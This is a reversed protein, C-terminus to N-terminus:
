FNAEHSLEDATARGALILSDYKETNEEIRKYQYIFIKKQVLNYKKLIRNFKKSKRSIHLHDAEKLLSLNEDWYFIGYEKIQRLQQEKTYTSPLNYISFALQRNRDITDLIEQYRFIDRNMNLYAFVSTGLGGIMVLFFTVQQLRRWTPHLLSPYYLWGLIFGALLGGIHSAHDINSNNKLSLLLQIGVLIGISIFLNKRERPELLKQTTIALIVGYLGLIAGSAGASVIFDNWWVSALSASLGCLIYTLLFRRSGLFSELYLGAVMLFYMNFFLHLVDFHVFLCTVLRYAQGRLTSPKYNAFFQLDFPNVANSDYSNLTILVFFFVNLAILIPTVYYGKVPLFVSLFNKIVKRKRTLHLTGTHEKNIEEFQKIYQGHQWAYHDPNTSAAISQILSTLEQLNQKNKGFDIVQAGTCQSRIIAHDDFMQVTIQENWSKWSFHTFAIIYQENAFSIDWNLSELAMCTYTFFQSRSVQDYAFPTSRGPPFGIM